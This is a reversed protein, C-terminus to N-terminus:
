QKALACDVDAGRAILWESERGEFRRQTSARHQRAIDGRQAFYPLVRRAVEGIRTRKRFQKFLKRRVRVGQMSRSATGLGPCLEEGSVPHYSPVPCFECPRQVLRLCAGIRGSNRM